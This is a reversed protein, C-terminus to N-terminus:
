VKCAPLGTRDALQTKSAHLWRGADSLVAPQDWRFTWGPWDRRALMANEISGQVYRGDSGFLSMSIVRKGAQKKDLEVVKKAVDPLVPDTYSSLDPIVTPAPSPSPPLAPPPPTAVAQLKAHQQQLQQLQGQLQQQVQEQQQKLQSVGDKLDNTLQPLQKADGSTAQQQNHQEYQQQQQRLQSVAEQLDTTLQVLQQATPGASAHTSNVRYSDAADGVFSAQFGPQLVFIHLMGGLFLVSV